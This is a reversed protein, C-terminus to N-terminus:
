RPTNLKDRAIAIIYASSVQDDNRFEGVGCEREVSNDALTVDCQGYLSITGFYNGLLHEFEEVWFEKVHFPNPPTDVSPSFIRRNPTSCILLGDEKLVRRCEDLFSYFAAIHELTEFSVVADFSDSAFPLRTGDASIFDTRSDISYWDHAFRVTEVSVDAGIVRAAGHEVMYGTGYGTGCAIDLVNKHEVMSAAFIYRDIHEKYIDQPTKGPVLREGTFEMEAKPM